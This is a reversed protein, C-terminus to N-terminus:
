VCSAVGLRLKDDVLDKRDAADLLQEVSQMVHRAAILVTEGKETLKVSGADRHMLVLELADELKSIRV